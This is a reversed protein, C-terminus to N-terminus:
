EKGGIDFRSKRIEKSTDCIFCKISITLPTIDHKKGCKCEWTPLVVRKPYVIEAPPATKYDIAEGTKPVVSNATARRRRPAPAPAEKGAARRARSAALAAELERNM